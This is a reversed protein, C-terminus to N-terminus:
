RKKDPKAQNRGLTLFADVSLVVNHNRDKIELKVTDKHPGGSDTLTWAATYGATGNVKGTGTGKHTSFSGPKRHDRRLNRDDTCRASTQSTLVFTKSTKGQGWEVTLERPRKSTDCSLNVDLTIDDNAGGKDKGDKGKNKDRDKDNDTWFDFKPDNKKGANGGRGGWGNTDHEANKRGDEKDKDVDYRKIHGGGDMCGDDTPVEVIAATLEGRVCLGFVTFPDTGTSLASGQVAGTALNFRYFQSTYFNASWFSTGDPDLNLAFWGADLDSTGPGAATTTWMVAGAGDLRKINIGDAVLLGGTGDGPPLVRFAFAAAGPEAPLVAFDTLQTNTSVNFRKIKRGESTYFMTAQDAALDIEDTGGTSTLSDDALVAHTAFPTGDANFEEITAVFPGGVFFRGNAGFVISEPNPRATAIPVGSQTHPDADNYVVIKGSSFSTTYFRDLAPNFACGTTSAGQGDNLQDNVSEKFSGASSYVNYAGGGVGAFVDGTAWITLASTTAVCFGLALVLLALRSGWTRTTM